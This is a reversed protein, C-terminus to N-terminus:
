VVTSFSCSGSKTRTSSATFSLSAHPTTSPGVQLKRHTILSSFCLHAFASLSLCNRPWSIQSVDWGALQPRPHNIGTIHTGWMWLMYFKQEGFCSDEFDLCLGHGHTYHTRTSKTWLSSNSYILIYKFCLRNLDYDLTCKGCSCSATGWTSRRGGTVQM